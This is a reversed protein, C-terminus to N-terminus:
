EKEEVPPQPKNGPAPSVNAARGPLVTGTVLVFDDKWRISPATSILLKEPESAVAFFREKNQALKRISSRQTSSFAESAERIWETLFTTPAISLSISNGPDIRANEPSRWIRGESDLYVFEEVSFGLSSFLKPAETESGPSRLELRSRTTLPVRLSFGQETRSRFFDGSFKADSFQLNGLTGSTSRSLPNWSSKPLSVPTIEIPEKQEFGTSLMVGTRSVQEQSLYLRMEESHSQLDALAIRQGSGGIGDKLFIIAVIVICAGVSIIPTTIFLRHRQGEKAFYFLNVPAVLIAFIILLIFVLAPNFDKSGFTQFLQYRSGFDEAAAKSHPKIGSYKGLLSAELERGDWSRIQISGLSFTNTRNIGSAGQIQKLGLAGITLNPDASYVHLKGGLRVWEFIARTQSSRLKNWAEDDILLADLCSYGIWETPLTDPEYDYAFTKNSSRGGHRKKKAENLKSLSRQALKTSIAVTPWDPDTDESQSRHAVDLGSSMATITLSRYSSSTAFAPPIPVTIEATIESGNEVHFEFSSTYGLSRYRGDESFRVTWTRDQGTHNRITVRFPNHGTKPGLGFVSDVKIFSRGAKDYDKSLFHDLAQAPIVFLFLFVFFIAFRYPM